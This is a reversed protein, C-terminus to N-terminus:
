DTKDYARLQFEM